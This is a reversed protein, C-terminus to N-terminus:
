ANAYKSKPTEDKMLEFYREQYDNTEKAIMFRVLCENYPTLLVEPVTIKMADRLFDLSTLDSFVNLKEIGAALEIKSPERHLVAIERKVMEDVLKSLHMAVPYLEYVKCTLVYKGFLLAKDADWKEKGKYLTLWHWEYHDTMPYYYGDMVRLISGFDNEEKQTFFLRQGYCISKTFEDLTEPIPYSKGNIKIRLPKVLQVLGEPLNRYELFNFMMDRLTIKKINLGSVM